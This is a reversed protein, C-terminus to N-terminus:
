QPTQSQNCAHTCAWLPEQQASSNLRSSVSSGKKFVRSCCPECFDTQCRRLRSQGSSFIRAAVVVVSLCQETAANSYASRCGGGWKLVLCQPSFLEWKRALVKTTQWHWSLGFVSGTNAWFRNPSFFTPVCVILIRSHDWCTWIRM